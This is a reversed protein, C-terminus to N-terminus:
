KPKEYVLENKHTHKPDNKLAELATQLIEAANQRETEINVSQISIDGNRIEITIENM